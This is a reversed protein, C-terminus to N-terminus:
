KERSYDALWGRPEDDIDFSNRACINEYFEDSMWAPRTDLVSLAPYKGFIEERSRAAIVAWVGGMGYDYVVLYRQKDSSM